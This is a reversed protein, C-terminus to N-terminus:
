HGLPETLRVAGTKVVFRLLKERETPDTGGWGDSRAAM